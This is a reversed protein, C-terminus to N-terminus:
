RPNTVLGDRLPLGSVNIVNSRMATPTTIVTAVAKNTLGIAAACMLASSSPAPGPSNPSMVNSTGVSDPLASM